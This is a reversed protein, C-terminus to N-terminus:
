LGTLALPGRARNIVFAIAAESLARGKAGREASDRRRLAVAARRTSGARGAMLLAACQWLLLVCIPGAVPGLLVPFSDNRSFSPEV